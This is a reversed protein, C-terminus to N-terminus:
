GKKKVKSAAVSGTDAQAKPKPRKSPKTMGVDSDDEEVKAAGAIPRSPKALTTGKAPLPIGRSRAEQELL